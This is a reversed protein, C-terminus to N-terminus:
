CLLAVQKAIGREKHEHGVHVLRGLGGEFPTGKVGHATTANEHVKECCCVICFKVRDVLM